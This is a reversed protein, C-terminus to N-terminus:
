RSRRKVEVGLGIALQYVMDEVSRVDNRLEKLEVSVRSKFSEFDAALADTRSYWEGLAFSVCVVCLALKITLRFGGNKHWPPKM